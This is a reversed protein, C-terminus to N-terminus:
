EVSFFVDKDADLSTRKLPRVEPSKRERLLRGVEEMKEKDVLDAKSPYSDTPKGSTPQIPLQASKTELSEKLVSTANGGHIAFLRKPEDCLEYTLTPEINRGINIGLKSGLVDLGVLVDESELLSSVVIFPQFDILKGELM